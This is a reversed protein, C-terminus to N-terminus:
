SRFVGVRVWVRSCYSPPMATCRASCSTRSMSWTFARPEAALERSCRPAEFDNRGVVVLRADPDSLLRLADLALRLNKAPNSRGVFLGFPLDGTVSQGDPGSGRDAAPRGADSIAAANSFASMSFAAVDVGNNVIAITAPDRGYAATIQAASYRSVTMVLRAKRASWSVLLKNRWRYRPSLIGPPNRFCTM